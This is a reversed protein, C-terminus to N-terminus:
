ARLLLLLNSSLGFLRNYELTARMGTPEALKLLEAGRVLNLNETKAWFTMGLARLIAQHLRQPLWHALPLFTHLEIPFDRDPTTVFVIRAVRALEQLFRAQNAPEGVHELVAFSVAVDFTKDAFPLRVGSTRVFKVGPFTTSINSADEISTATINEPHAYLAEFFNSEPLDRDPTVGVDLVTTHETFDIRRMVHAFMRRRARLSFSSALRRLPSRKSFYDIAVRM